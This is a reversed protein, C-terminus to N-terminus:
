DHKIKIYGDAYQKSGSSFVEVTLMKCAKSVSTLANSNWNACESIARM